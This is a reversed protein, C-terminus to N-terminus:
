RRARKHVRYITCLAVGAGIMITGIWFRPRLLEQFFFYGAAAVLPVRLYEFVPVFSADSHKISVAYCWQMIAALVSIALIILVGSAGIGVWDKEQGLTLTYILGLPVILLNTRYVIVTGSEDPGALENLILSSAYLFASVLALGPAVLSPLDYVPEKILVIGVFGLLIFIWGVVGLRNGFFPIALAAAFLPTTASLVTAEAIHMNMLAYYAAAQALFLVMGRFAYFNLRQPVLCSISKKARLLVLGYICTATVARYLSLDMSSVRNELLRVLVAMCTLLVAVVIMWLVAQLDSGTGARDTTGM